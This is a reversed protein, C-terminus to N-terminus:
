LTKSLHVRLGGRGTETWGLRKYLALASTMDRHTTLRLASAGAQRAREEAATILRRGLGHGAHGPDVALNALMATEGSLELVVGGAIERDRVAVLVTHDRIDEALSGTVDPLGELRARAWAYARAFVRFLADHDGPVATRITFDKM